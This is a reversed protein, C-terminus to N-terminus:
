NLDMTIIASGRGISEDSTSEVKDFLISKTLQGSGISSGVARPLSSRVMSANLLRLDLGNTAPTADMVFKTLPMAGLPTSRCTDDSVNLLCVSSTVLTGHVVTGMENGFPCSSAWPTRSICMTKGLTIGCTDMMVYSPWTLALM